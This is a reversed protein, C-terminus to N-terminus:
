RVLRRALGLLGVAATSGVSAAALASSGSVSAGLLAATAAAVGVIATTGLGAVHRLAVSREIRASRDLTTGWSVLEALLLLGAGYGIAAAAPAGVVLEHMVLEAALAALALGLTRPWGTASFLLLVLAIGALSRVAM